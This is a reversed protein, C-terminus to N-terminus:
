GEKKRMGGEVKESSRGATAVVPAGSPGFTLKDGSARRQADGDVALAAVIVLSWPLALKLCLSARRQADDDVALAAVSSSSFLALQSLPEEFDSQRNLDRAAPQAAVGDAGSPAGFFGEDFVSPAWMPGVRRPPRVERLAQSRADRVAIRSARHEEGGRASM